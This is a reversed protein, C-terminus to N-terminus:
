STVIRFHRYNLICPWLSRAATLIKSKNSRVTIDYNNYRSTILITVIEQIKVVIDIDIFM